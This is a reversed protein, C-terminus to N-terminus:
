RNRDVKETEFDKSILPVLAVLGWPEVRLERDPLCHGIRRARNFLPSPTRGVVVVRRGAVSARTSV